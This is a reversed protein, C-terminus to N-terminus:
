NRKQRSSVLLVFMFFFFFFYVQACGDMYVWVSELVDGCMPVSRHLGGGCTQACWRVGLCVQM